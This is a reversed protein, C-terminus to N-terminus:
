TDRKGNRMYLILMNKCSKQLKACINVQPSVFVIYKSGHLYFVVYAQDHRVICIQFCFRPGKKVQFNIQICLFFFFFILHSQSMAQNCHRLRDLFPLAPFLRRDDSLSRCSCTNSRVQFQKLRVDRGLSFYFCHLHELMFFFIKM